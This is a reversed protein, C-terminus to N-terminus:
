PEGDIVGEIVMEGASDCGAPLKVGVCDTVPEAEGVGLVAENGLVDVDFLREGM